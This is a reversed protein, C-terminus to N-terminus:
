ATAADPAPSAASAGHAALWTAQLLLASLGAPRPKSWEVLLGARDVLGPFPTFGDAAVECAFALTRESWLMAGNTGKTERALVADPLLGAFLTRMAGTRGDFGTLGGAAALAHVVREALLPRVISVGYDAAEAECSTAHLGLPRERAKWQVWASWPVPEHARHARLHQSLRLAAPGSLWGPADPARPRWQTMVSRGRRLARPTAARALRRADARAPPHERRALRGLRRHPWGTLLEDGGLGVVLTGGRAVDLVPGLTTMNPPYRLGHRRLLEFAVPGLLDHDGDLSLRVWDNCGLARTVADQWSDEDAGEVGPFRATVPVPRQFGERVALRDAVALLASSDRGGSFGVFVRGRALLPRLEQELAAVVSGPPAPRWVLPGAELRVRTVPYGSAIDLDDLDSGVRAVRATGSALIRALSM